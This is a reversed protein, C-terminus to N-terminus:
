PTGKSPQTPKTAPKLMARIRGGSAPSGTKSDVGMVATRKKFDIRMHSGKVLNDGQLLTVKGKLVATQTAADYQGWDGEALYDETSVVVHDQAVVKDLEWAE